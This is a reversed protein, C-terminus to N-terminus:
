GSGACNQGHASAGQRTVFSSVETLGAALDVIQERTHAASLSVRLRSTGVPVTPPRMAPVHLGRDLLFQQAELTRMPEGMIVPVIPSEPQRGLVRTLQRVNEWLRARHQPEGLSVEVAALAGAAVPAPSATSFIYPRCRNIITEVVLESAAVFGGHAGAAKSMTGTRIAVRHAVGLQESLGGGREGFVLLAHAEDVLVLANHRECLDVMEGLPALDGDMSFVSETLVVKREAASAQLLAGLHTVDGHGFVEVTAGRRRALRCGDVLSAHNSADSFLATGEGALATVTGVNAAYGTPFILARESQMLDALAQELRAHWSSYGCVLPSGGSGLGVQALAEAAAAKVKPHASLGLYDNSSFLCVPRGDLQAVTASVADARRAKRMLGKAELDRLGAELWQSWGSAM